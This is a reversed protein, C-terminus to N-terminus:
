PHHRKNKGLCLAIRVKKRKRHWERDEGPHPLGGGSKKGKKNISTPICEGWKKKHTPNKKKQKKKKGGGVVGKKKDEESPFFGGGIRKEVLFEQSSARVGKGKREERV